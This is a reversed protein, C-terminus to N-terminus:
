RHYRNTRVLHRRRTNGILNRGPDPVSRWSVISRTRDLWIDFGSRLQVRFKLSMARSNRSLFGLTLRSMRVM